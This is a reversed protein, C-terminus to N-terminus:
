FHCIPVRARLTRLTSAAGIALFIHQANWTEESTSAYAAFGFWTLGMLGTSSLSYVPLCVHLAPLLALASLELVSAARKGGPDGSAAALAALAGTGILVPACVRGVTSGLREGATVAIAAGAGPALMSHANDLGYVIDHCTAVATISLSGFAALWSWREFPHSLWLGARGRFVSAVGVAGVAALPVLSMLEAYHGALSVAAQGAAQEQKAGDPPM